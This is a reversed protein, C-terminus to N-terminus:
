GGQGGSPNEEECANLIDRATNLVALAQLTFAQAAEYSALASAEAAVAADHSDKALQWAAREASCPDGQSM